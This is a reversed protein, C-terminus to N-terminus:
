PALYRQIPARPYTYRPIVSSIWSMLDFLVGDNTQNTIHLGPQSINSVKYQYSGTGDGFNWITGRDLCFVADIQQEVPTGNELYYDRLKQHITAIALQSEFAFIFYPRHDVFRFIDSRNGHVSMGDQLEPKLSKYTICSQILTDIDQSNLKTKVEGVCAVGEIIFMEPGSLDNLTPHYENTIILDLQTTQAGNIDIIEGEGIRNYPPLYSCLFERVVGEASSGRDGSHSLSERIEQLNLEMRKQIIEFKKKFM